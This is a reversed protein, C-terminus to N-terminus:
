EGADGSAGEVAGMQLIHFEVRRNTAQVDPSDGKQLPRTEGFGQAELRDAAIGNKVLYNVVSQARAQSLDLNHQDDGTSDTHGEVRIKQVEPRQVLVEVLRDLVALSERTLEARDVEFFVKRQLYIRGAVPDVVIEGNPQLVLQVDASGGEKAKVMTKAQQWGPATVVVEYVGPAVKVELIGDSGANKTGEGEGVLRIQAGSVPEGNPNIVRFTLGVPAADTPAAAALPAPEAPRVGLGITGAFGAVIRVDPSGVGSSLGTGLGLRAISGGPLAYSGSLLLESPRAGAAGGASLWQELNAELSVALPSLGVYSVGVSGLVAASVPLAGLSRGTGTRAGLHAALSVPGFRYSSAAGGRLQLMGSGLWDGSAGLPLGVDLWPGLHGTKGFALAQLEATVRADGLAGARSSLGDSVLHVPLEAGVRVRGLSASGTLHATFLDGVVAIEEGQEPRFVLPDNAYDLWVGLHAGGAPGVEGDVTTLFPSGDQVPSFRQSNVEQASALAPVALGVALAARRRRRVVLAGLLAPLLTAAGGASDCAGGTFSGAGLLGAGSGGPPGGTDATDIPPIPQGTDCSGDLDDADVANAIGDCDDDGVGEDADTKGDGDSDPDVANGLGDGDVDETGESENSLGDGDTDEDLADPIDDGDADGTQGGDTVGDGNDDADVLASDGDGDLDGAGEFADLVGDGDSDTDTADSVGDGDTDDGGELVDSWGDGDSDDDLADVVGDGDTDVDGETADTLGDGDSDEDLFDAQGDGDTDVLGEDADALGDGDSDLDDVLGDLGDFVDPIGDADTDLDDFPDNPDTEWLDVAGDGDRDEAGDSLGADNAQDSDVDLPDTTTAPDADAVFAGAALDTDALPSTVGVETGDFLGDGDTDAVTPDTGLAQEEGDGLGDDDSDADAPNSGLFGEAVSDVGDADGDLTLADSTTAEALCGVVTTCGSVDAWTASLPDRTYAALRFSTLDSVGNAALVSRDLTLELYSGSGSAAVAVPRVEGTGVSGLAAVLVPSAPALGPTNALNAFLQLAGFSSSADVLLEYDGPTADADIAIGWVGNDLSGVVGTPNEVVHLRLYVSDTDISWWISPDGATGVLELFSGGGARDLDSDLVQTGSVPAWATDAPWAFATAPLSLALLGGLRVLM